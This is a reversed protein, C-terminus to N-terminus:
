MNSSVGRPVTATLCGIKTQAKQKLLQSSLYKNFLECIGARYKEEPSICYMGFHHTMAESM